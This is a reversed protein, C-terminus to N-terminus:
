APAHPRSPPPIHPQDPPPLFPLQSTELEGGADGERLAVLEEVEQLVEHVVDIVEVDFGLLVRPVAAVPLAAGAM